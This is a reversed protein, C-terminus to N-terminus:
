YIARYLAMAKIKQKGFDVVPSVYSSKTYRHYLNWNHIIKIDIDRLEPVWKKIYTALPDLKKSQTWPNFIRFYPQSDAGSGSVWQWNGNNVLPDYDYLKTAFYYEGWKWDILLTKILFSATILRTRNHMYGTENLQRMGADVIPFGTKGSKWSNFLKKDNEWKINRHKDKLSQELVPFVSLQYYFDRWILQNIMSISKTSWYVERISICGFKIFASLESTKISPRDKEYPAPINKLQILGNTRGGHLNIKDDFDVLERIKSEKMRTFTFKKSVPKRVSKKSHTLYVSFKKYSKIDGINDICYDDTQLFDINNRVCLDRILGERWKAFPTYDTTISISSVGTLKLSNLVKELKGYFVTLKGGTQKDLDIISEIMFQIAKDSKLKNDKVQEDTFIFVPIINKDGSNLVTNDYIRLDRTFIHIRM